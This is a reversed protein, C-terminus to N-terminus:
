LVFPRVGKRDLPALLEAFTRGLVPHRGEPVLDALPVLVFARQHLRPHPVELGVERLVLDGYLLLDLDITRPGWREKRERGLSREIDLLAELFGRPPLKTDVEAVLNLYLPQPPGVPETEYVPSLRLFRTEPLRSLLSLAQLLYGARDGLNSGLGVYALM